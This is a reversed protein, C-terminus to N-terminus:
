FPNACWPQLIEKSCDEFKAITLSSSLRHLSESLESYLELCSQTRFLDTCVAV